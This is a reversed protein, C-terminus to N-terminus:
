WTGGHRVMSSLTRDHGIMDKMLLCPLVHHSMTPCPPFFSLNQLSFLRDEEVGAGEGWMWRGKGRGIEDSSRSRTRQETRRTTNESGSTTRVKGLGYIPHQQNIRFLSSCDHVFFSRTLAQELHYPWSLRNTTTLEFFESSQVRDRPSATWV